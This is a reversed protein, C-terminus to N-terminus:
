SRGSRPLVTHLVARKETVNIPPEALRQAPAASVTTLTAGSM